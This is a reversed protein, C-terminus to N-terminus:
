GEKPEKVYEMIDKPQCNLLFCLEAIVEGRINENHTLKVITSPHIGNNKLWQKNRQRKELMIWLKDYCLYGHEGYTIM